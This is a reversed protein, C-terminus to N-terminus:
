FTDEKCQASFEYSFGKTLDDVILNLEAVADELIKQKNIGSPFFIMIEPASM